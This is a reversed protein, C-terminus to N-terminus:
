NRLQNVIVAYMSDRIVFGADSLSVAGNSWTVQFRVTYEGDALHAMAPDNLTGTYHVGDSGSLRIREGTALLQATVAVPRTATHTDTVTAALVLVEGGWFVQSARLRDPFRRNWNLRIQEWEATHNIQGTITLPQVVLTYHTVQTDAYPDSVTLTIPYSGPQPFSGYQFAVVSGSALGTWAGMERRSGALDIEVKANVNDDDPDSVQLVFEPTDSEYVPAPIQLHGVPARNVRMYTFPSYDGWDFGDYVQVRVHYVGGAALEVPLQYRGKAERTQQDIVGSDHVKSGMADYIELHFQAFIAQADADSQQWTMEPKRSVPTPSQESGAPILMTAVPRRNILLWEPESWEGWLEGDNLRVTVKLPINTPLDYTPIIAQAGLPWQVDVIDSSYLVTGAANTAILHYAKITDNDSDSANWRLTPRLNDLVKQPSSEKGIPNTLVARPAQNVRMWGINSWDSWAEGDTVRVQVQLPLGRPLTGTLWNWSGSSAYISTEGSESIIRGSADSVKTQYGRIIGQDPDWQNWYITPRTTYVITPAAQTGTPYTLQVGPKANPTPIKGINVEQSVPSSWAGYEDRVQLTVTYIGYETARTLKENVVVGSPSTYSYKREMVGRTTQYDIGTNETSYHTASLWRDPDYSTDTWNVVGAGDVSLTFVAVPRRHVTLMAAFANSDKRYEDFVMSPFRFFPQPDDREQLTVRYDGVKDFTVQPGTLTQGNLASLGQNNLFRPTHEYRWKSQGSKPDNEPDSFLVSEYKATAVGTSPEWIAYGSFWKIDPVPTELIALKSFTVFSKDSFPGYKGSGYRGDTAELYPVGDLTVTLRDGQAKVAFAYSREKQFPYPSSALITRGGEVYRALMVSVGNTEVAYRNRANQMRFSFGALERDEQPQAISLNFSFQVDSMADPSVWQGLKFGKFAENPNVTGADLFMYNKEEAAGYQYGGTAGTYMYGQYTSFWLGDGVYFGGRYKEAKQYETISRNHKYYVQQNEHWKNQEQENTGSANLTSWGPITSGDPRFSFAWAMNIDSLGPGDQIAGTDLNVTDYFTNLGLTSSGNNFTQFSRTYAQRTMPNIVMLAHNDNPKVWEGLSDYSGGVGRLRNLIQYQHTAVNYKILYVGVPAEPNKYRDLWHPKEEFGGYSHPIIEIALCGRTRYFYVNGQDDKWNGDNAKWECTFTREPEKYPTGWANVLNEVYNGYITPFAVSGKDVVKGERNHEAYSMSNKDSTLLILNNGKSSLAVSWGTGTYSWYGSANSIGTRDIDTTIQKGTYADYSIVILLTQGSDNYSFNTEVRNESYNYYDYAYAPPPNYSKSFVVYIVNGVVESGIYQAQDSDTISATSTATSYDGKYAKDRWYWDNYQDTQTYRPVTVTKGMGMPLTLPVAFDYPNPDLWSHVYNEIWDYGDGSGNDMVIGGKYRPLKAKNFGWIYGEADFYLHSKNTRVISGFKTAVLKSYPKSPDTVLRNNTDYPLLLPQSRSTDRSGPQMGKYSSIGNPGNGADDNPAFNYEAVWNQFSGLLQTFYQQKEMGRGLGAFLSGDTQKHWQIKTAMTQLTNTQFLSWNGLISDTSITKKTAPTPTDNKGSITFSVEPALNIVNLTLGTTPQGTTDGQRGYDEVVQVDFLYKGVKDPTFTLMDKTGTVSQWADDGFGNNNADYKYRYNTQVIPDGDPSYSKNYIDVPFSRLGLPPVELKAVPPLDPKVTLKHVASSLSKLAPDGNDWVDLKVDVLIDESTGNTYTTKKNSWEDKSHDISRNAPSYSRAASFADAAVPRNEKVTTPGDIVAIPNPPIVNLTAGATYSAGFADAMSMYITHTGPTDTTIGTLRDALPAFQYRMPLDAIWNSSRGYDWGTIHIPDGEPDSPSPPKSNPDEIYRVHVKTGQIVQTLPLTSSYDGELFWGLKFYPPQNDQPGNITMTKSIWDSQCGTGTIQMQVTVSGVSVPAPYLNPYRFQLLQTRDRSRPAAYTSGNVLRFVHSNYTCGGTEIINKPKLSFADRYNISYGPLIDFDGTISMPSPTPTTGSVVPETVQPIPKYEVNVTAPYEYTYSTVQSDFAFVYIYTLAGPATGKYKLDGPQNFPVTYTLTYRTSSEILTAKINSVNLSMKASEGKPLFNVSRESTEVLIDSSKPPAVLKFDIEKETATFYKNSVKSYLTRSLDVVGPYDPM